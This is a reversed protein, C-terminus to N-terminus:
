SSSCSRFHPGAAPKAFDRACGPSAPPAAIRGTDRLAQRAPTLQIRYLSLPAQRVRCRDLRCFFPGNMAMLQSRQCIRTSDLQKSRLRKVTSFSLTPRDSQCFPVHEEILNSIEGPPLHLEAPAAPALTYGNPAILPFSLGSLRRSLGRSPSTTTAPVEAPDKNVSGYMAM